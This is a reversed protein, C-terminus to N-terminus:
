SGEAKNIANDLDAGRLVNGIGDIVSWKQGRRLLRYRKADMADDTHGQAVAPSPPVPEGMYTPGNIDAVLRKIVQENELAQKKWSLLDERAGEYADKFDVQSHTFLKTGAPLEKKLLVHSKIVGRGDLAEMTFVEAVAEGSRAHSLAANFMFEGLDKGGSNAHWENCAAKFAEKYAQNM